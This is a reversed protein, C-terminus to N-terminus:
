SFVSCFVAKFRLIARGKDTEMIFINIRPCQFKNELGYVPFTIVIIIGNGGSM